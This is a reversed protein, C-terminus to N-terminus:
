ASANYMNIYYQQILNNPILLQKQKRIIEWPTNKTHTLTSLQLSNYGKYVEWVKNLLLITDPDNVIPIQLDSGGKNETVLSTIAENGIHEFAEYLSAIAPGYRWAQVAESILPEDNIALHWGHALYVLKFLKIPNIPIGTDFSKHLFFNAVAAPTEM